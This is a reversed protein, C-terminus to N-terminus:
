ISVNLSKEKKNIIKELDNDIYEDVEKDFDLLYTRKIQKSELYSQIALKKALQAKKKANEYMEYYVENPKKLKITNKELDEPLELNIEIMDNEELDKNTEELSEEKNKIKELDKKYQNDELMEDENEINDGDEKKNDSTETNVVM